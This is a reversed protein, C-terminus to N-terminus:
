IGKARALRAPTNNSKIKAYWELDTSPVPRHLALVSFLDALYTTRRNAAAEPRDPRLAPQGLAAIQAFLLDEGPGVGVEGAHIFPRVGMGPRDRFSRSLGPQPCRSEGQAQAAQLHMRREGEEQIRAAPAVVGSPGLAESELLDQRPGVIEVAIAAPTSFRSWPFFGRRRCCRREEGGANRRFFFGLYFRMPLRFYTRKGASDAFNWSEFGM